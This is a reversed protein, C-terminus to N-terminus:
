AAFYELRESNGSLGASSCLLQNLVKKRAQKPMAIPARQGGIRWSIKCILSTPKDQLNHINYQISSDSCLPVLGSSFVSAAKVIHDVTDEEQCGVYCAM